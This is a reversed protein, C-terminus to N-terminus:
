YAGEREREREQMWRYIQRDMRRYFALLGLQLSLNVEVMVARHFSLFSHTFIEEVSLYGSVHPALCTM